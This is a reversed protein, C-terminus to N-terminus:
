PTEMQNLAARLHLDTSLDNEIVTSEVEPFLTDIESQIDMTKRIATAIRCYRRPDDMIRGKRDKLYKHLVQYGGIHYNWMERTIGEFYKDKNLYVRTETENYTIKEITDNDGEGQYRAVPPDLEDSKLLHLAALREGLAAMRTFLGINKTFPVRPFDIKLYEAYKERFINSYFVAYIYHLIDEPSLSEGLVNELLEMLLPNLNSQKKEQNPRAFGQSTDDSFFYLPFLASQTTREGCKTEMIKDSVFFHNMNGSKNSRGTVLALNDGELMHHMVRKVTRWVIADHYFIHRVDFPRYLVEHIYDKLREDAIEQLQNWATRINWGKKIRINFTKHLDNDSFSSNKFIRIRNELTNKDHTIVFSDRATTMGAGNIPFLEHVSPWTLYYEIGETHRPILFYWPSKPSLEEFGIGTSDPNELQHYKENQLGYLDAYKVTCGTKGAEKVFLTIAVGQKIDFVNEDKGGDPATEKKLSNGHLNLITIENFTKMLSQRMGRFTPNDLYGHNTIMGVIGQGAKHIKWQAFRLFKVYDDQMWKPNKEGLPQSDVTYYSQAGGINTKLLTETWKNRNASKAHYPSNGLIVLIPESEKVNHALRSEESLSHLGPFDVHTTEEMELTNTLYLKFRDDEGMEYGLEHLLFSIKLHGIAYPAMMLEFAYFHPLIHSQILRHVAGKGYKETTEEAALRIAEAPFTLTGGAPDLLTVSEDALGDTKGFHTKLTEHIARVIYRVVPEPTYYVGRRERTKPDYAALFTEYFHIIPDKGKKEEFYRNLIHPVDAASLVDAIDDIIVKMQQSPDEMSIYRFVDKLIGITPPIFRYALARNFEGNARTRAAFLGYAITQAYLDAFQKKELGAILYTKFAEYFGHIGGSSDAEGALEEAVVEDRLFRTRKALETALASATSIAPLSFAFFRDLLEKFEVAHSVPSALQLNEPLRSQGISVQFTLEGDRYLRFEYFDTLILNPFTFRYRTLQESGEIQDLNTGPKKAEIYGVIHQNGDWIRFDPNGAETQKPLTTIDISRNLGSEGYATLLGSLHQYYSEERADGRITTRSISELYNELM